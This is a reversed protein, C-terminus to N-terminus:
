AEKDIIRLFDDAVSQLVDALVLIIADVDAAVGLTTVVLNQLIKTREVLELLGKRRIM